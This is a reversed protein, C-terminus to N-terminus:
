RKLVFDKPVFELSRITGNTKTRADTKAVYCVVVNVPKRPGCTIEGAIDASYTTIDVQEFSAAKLRLLQAGNKVVFTIGRADCEIRVLIGGVQTEGAAPKRLAERLHSSPDVDKVTEAQDPTVVLERLVPKDPSGREGTDARFRTMQEQISSISALLSQANAKIQPDAGNAALPVVVNRAVEYEQKRMYLQALVFLFEESGPSLSVARRIMAISEDLEEGTVLNVFALLHYSEPFDPKLEIAKRLEARMKKATEAPVGYVPQGETMVERSLAFAYYYHLLYNGSNEAVAQELHARAEPIKKQEMLVMGLSAHAMALKPDLALAQELRTKADNPRHIHHLLDGLYAQAEAESIPAAKMESDFELKKEFTAIQGRYSSRQIYDKLEKQMGAYDTQFAQRFATEMPTNQRLLTVFAGLQPLRKGENGQVLYHMLAWSQAYFLGRADHKNRELSYYDVAFLKDLPLLQTTRLLELHHSILNGLYVKRDDEIKFTSYYEAIGENFWAPVNTRGLTNNVLLHVYEHFITTFSDEGRNETTLTIYNVDRGPQFYGAVAVTKGDAVPKFPKYSSDSKFVIVTTPVPSTFAMGPFLRSFVDRFQELKVAVQRIEKENANGVLFFNKSRVSTWTDKASVPQHTPVVALFYFVIALALTFRKIM